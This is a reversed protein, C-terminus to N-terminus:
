SRDRASQLTWGSMQPIFVNRILQQTITSTAQVRGSKGILAYLIAGTSRIPDIGPHYYFRRDEIALVAQVMPPAIGSLHVRRQKAREQLMTSLVPADLTLQEQARGALELLEIRDSPRSPAPPAKRKAAPPAPRVFAVRVKQGRFQAARPILTVADPEVTFEGPRDSAQRETYGLDNLRDILQRNTIAQGRRLELPRAYITPVTRQREGHLQVDILNAFRIYYYPGAIAGVVIPIACVVALARIWRKRWIASLRITLRYHSPNFRSLGTIGQNM